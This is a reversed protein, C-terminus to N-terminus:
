DGMEHDMVLPVQAKRSKSETQTILPSIAIAFNRVNNIIFVAISDRLQEPSLKQEDWKSFLVNLGERVSNGRIINEHEEAEKINFFTKGDSTKWAKIEKM